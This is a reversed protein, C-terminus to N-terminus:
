VYNLMGFDSLFVNHLDNLNVNM